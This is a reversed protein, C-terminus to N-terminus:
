LSVPDQGAIIESRVIDGAGHRLDHVGQQTEIGARDRAVAVVRNAGLRGVRDSMEEIGIGLHAEGRRAGGGVREYEGGQGRRVLRDDGVLMRVHRRVLGAGWPEEARTEADDTQPAGRAPNIGAGQRRSQRSGVLRM